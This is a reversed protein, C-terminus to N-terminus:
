KGFTRARWASRLERLELTPFPRRWLDEYGHEGHEELVFDFCRVVTRALRDVTVSGSWREVGLSTECGAVDSVTLAVDEQDRRFDWRYLGPEDPLHAVAQDYGSAIRTVASILEEPGGLYSVPHAFEQRSDAVECIAWGVGDLTWTVTFLM